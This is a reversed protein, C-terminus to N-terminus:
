TKHSVSLLLQRARFALSIPLCIIEMCKLLTIMSWFLGQPHM